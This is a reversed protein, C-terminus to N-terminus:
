SPGPVDEDPDPDPDPPLLGQLRKPTVPHGTVLRWQAAGQHVWMETGFVPTGGGQHVDRLLRTWRPRIVMDLVVKRRWDVPQTVPSTEGDTGLPTANVLGAFDLTSLDDWAVPTGGYDRALATTAEGRRGVVFVEHGVEVLAAVAARAAGGTGLVAVPAASPLRDGFAGVVGVGDTNHGLWGGTGDLALTNVAGLRAANDDLRAALTAAAAKHPMTVSAGRLGFEDLVALGQAFDRTPAALYFWDLGEAAALANYVRPGPSGGVQVGGLLIMLRRAGRASFAQLESWRVQGPATSATSPATAYTWPSNMVDYRVRGIQGALGMGIRVLPRGDRPLLRRLLGLDVVDDLTVALKLTAASRETLRRQDAALIKSTVQTSDFRHLSAVLREDGYRAHLARWTEDPAAAEVDVYRAGAELAADLLALRAPEEGRWQGGEAATRCTVILRDRQPLASVAEPTVHDLLDLRAEHLAAEPLSTIRASLAQVTAEAGTVCIM